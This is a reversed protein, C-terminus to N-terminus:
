FQYGDDDERSRDWRQYDPLRWMWGNGEGGQKQTLVKLHAKAKRLQRESIGAAQAM